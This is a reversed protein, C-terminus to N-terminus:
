GTAQEVLGLAIREAESGDGKFGAPQDLWALPVKPPCYRYLPDHHSSTQRSFVVVGESSFLTSSIVWSFLESFSSVGGMLGVIVLTAWTRNEGHHQREREYNSMCRLYEWHMEITRGLSFAVLLKRTVCFFAPPWLVRRPGCGDGRRFTGHQATTEM